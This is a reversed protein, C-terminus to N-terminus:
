SGAGHLVNELEPLDPNPLLVASGPTANGPDDGFIWQWRPIYHANGTQILLDHVQRAGDPRSAEWAAIDREWRAEEAQDTEDAPYWGDPNEEYGRPEAFVILALSIGPCGQCSGATQIGHRNWLADIVPVLGEDIGVQRGTFPDAMMVEDHLGTM